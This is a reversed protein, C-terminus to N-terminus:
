SAAPKGPRVTPKDLVIKGAAVCHRHGPSTLTRPRTSMLVRLDSTRKRPYLPCQSPVPLTRQQGLASM